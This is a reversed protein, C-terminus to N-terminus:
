AVTGVRLLPVRLEDATLSGHHGILGSVTREAEPAVLVTNARALVLVDGIRPRVADEVDGFLGRDSAEARTLVLARDDLLERWAAAVDAAAGDRTYIHRARPEGARLRVGANFAPESEIDIRTGPATDVMGHDATIYLAADPPLSDAIREALRDVYGLHTRWHPSDVGHVHGLSDLDSHYVFAYVRDDGELAEGARVALDTISDAGVYRGGRASARSLGSGRYAGAAIYATRVGAREAREYATTHPQWNEPVIDPAGWRLQNLVRETGPVAVQYGVVGHRGPPRGTGVTTLSTATTTPCGASIPSGTELLGALFPAHRRNARLAEWGMGDVLLVCARRVPPLGLADAEGAVGLSALVSTTLSALSAGYRPATLDDTDAPM